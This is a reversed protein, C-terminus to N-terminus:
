GIGTDQHHLLEKLNDLGAQYIEQVLRVAESESVGAPDFEGSWEVQSREGQGSVKLTALYNAVPLPSKVISYSYERLEDSHHELKEMITVGDVLTMERLTGGEKLESREVAPYWAPLANFGGILNWIREPLVSFEEIVTVKTM